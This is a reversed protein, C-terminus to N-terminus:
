DNANDNETMLPQDSQPRYTFFAEKVFLISTIIFGSIASLGVMTLFISDQNAIQSKSSTIFVFLAIELVVFILVSFAIFAALFFVVM